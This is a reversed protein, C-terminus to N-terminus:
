QFVMDLLPKTIGMCLIFIRTQQPKIELFTNPMDKLVLKNDATMCDLSIEM